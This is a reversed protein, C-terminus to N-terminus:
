GNLELKDLVDCVELKEIRNVAVALKSESSELSGKTTELSAELEAKVELLENCNNIKADVESELSQIQEKSASLSKKLDKIRRKLGKIEETNSADVALLEVIQSQKECNEAAVHELEKNTTELQLSLADLQRVSQMYKAKDEESINRLDAMTEQSKALHSECVEVEKMLVKKEDELKSVQSQSVTLQSQLDHVRAQLSTVADVLSTMECMSDVMCLSDKQAESHASRLADCQAEAARLSSELNLNKNKSEEVTQEFRTMARRLEDMHTQLNENEKALACKENSVIVLKQESDFLEKKLALVDNHVQDLASTKDDLQKKLAQIAEEAEHCRSKSSELLGELEGNRRCSTQLEVHNSQLDAEIKSKAAESKALDEHLSDLMDELEQIYGEMSAIKSELNANQEQLEGRESEAQKLRSQVLARGEVLSELVESSHEQASLAESFADLRGQLGANENELRQARLKEDHLKERIEMLENACAQAAKALRDVEMAREYSSQQEEELAGALEACRNQSEELSKRTTHLDNLANNAEGLKELLSSVEAQLSECKAQEQLVAQKAHDEARVLAQRQEESAHSMENQLSALKQSLAQRDENLREVKSRAAALNHILRGAEKHDMGQPKQQLKLLHAQLQSKEEQLAAVKSREQSLKEQLKQAAITTKNLLTNSKDMKRQLVAMESRYLKDYDTGTERVPPVTIHEKESRSFAVMNGQRRENVVRSAEHLTEDSMADDHVDEEIKANHSSPCGALHMQVELEQLRKHAGDIKMAAARKVEEVQEGAKRCAELAADEKQKSFELASRLNRMEIKIEEEQEMLRKINRKLAKNEERGDEYGRKMSAVEQQKQSLETSLTAEREVMGQRQADAYEIYKKLMKVIGRAETHSLGNDTSDGYVGEFLLQIAEIANDKDYVVCSLGSRTTAASGPTSVSGALAGRWSGKPTGQNALVQMNEEGGGRLPSHLSAEQTELWAMMVPDNDSWGTEVGNASWGQDKGAERGGLRSNM